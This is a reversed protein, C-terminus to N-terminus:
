DVGVKTSLPEPTIALAFGISDLAGGYEGFWQCAAKDAGKLFSTLQNQM